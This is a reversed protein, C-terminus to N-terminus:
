EHVPGVQVDPSSNRSGFAQWQRCSGTNGDANIFMPAQVCFKPKSM